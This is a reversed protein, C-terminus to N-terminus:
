ERNRRDLEPLHRQVNEHPERRDVRHQYLSLLLYALGIAIVTGELVQLALLEEGTIHYDRQIGLEYIPGLIGGATILLFGITSNRFAAKKDSSRYVSYSLASIIMGFLFQITTALVLLTILSM